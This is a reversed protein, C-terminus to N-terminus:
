GIHGIVRTVRPRSGLVTGCFLRCTKVLEGIWRRASEQVVEPYLRLGWSLVLNNDGACSAAREIWSRLIDHDRATLDAADAETKVYRALWGLANQIQPEEWAGDWVEPHRDLSRIIQLPTLLSTRILLGRVDRWAAVEGAAMRDGLVQPWDLGDLPPQDAVRQLARLASRLCGAECALSLLEEVFREVTYPIQQLFALLIQDALVDHAIVWTPAGGFEELSLREVWGDVTLVDLLRGFGGQDLLHFFDVPMPLMSVFLALERGVTPEGFSLQVRKGVWTGFDTENLLEALDDTRGTSFLYFVFVAFIPVDRCLALHKDTAEIGSHELIHRVVERRYNQLWVQEPDRVFPSLDVRQRRSSVPLAHYHSSRCSAVYCLHAFYTDSLDNVVHELEVFGQQTEVYDFLLLVPVGPTVWEKLRELADPQLRSQARFVLWGKCEALHAIEQALRTKGVGGSGTVVLGTTAGDEFLALLDEEDAISVDAPLPISELHHLRSYYPLKESSLYARFTGLDRSEALPILGLPRILPFWRFLLHPQHSLRNCLDSWDLVRVVLEKLHALHPYEEGLKVFFGTIERQLEDLQELNGLISSICFIYEGIKPDTQYWPGYQKHRKAPGGPTTLHTGLKGAVDRWRRRAEELGDKGIFKCEVVTRTGATTQCLDIAGDKGGTPFLHLDPYDARLVQHAFVQFIDGIDERVLGPNLNRRVFRPIDM